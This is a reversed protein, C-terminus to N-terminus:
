FFISSNFLAMLTPKIEAKKILEERSGTILIKGENMIIYHQGLIDAEKPTHTCIVIPKHSEAHTQNIVQWIEHRAVPDISSTPEDLFILNSEQSFAIAITLKRKM